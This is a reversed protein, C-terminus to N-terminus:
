GEPKGTVSDARKLTQAVAFPRIGSQEPENAALQAALACSGASSNVKSAM